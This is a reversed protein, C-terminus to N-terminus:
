SVGIARLLPLLPTDMYECSYEGTYGPQLSKPLVFRLSDLSIIPSDAGFETGDIVLGNVYEFQPMVGNISMETKHMFSAESMNVRKEQIVKFEHNLQAQRDELAHLFYEEARSRGDVISGM